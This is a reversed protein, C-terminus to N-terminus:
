GRRRGPRAIPRPRSPEPPRRCRWWGRPRAFRPSPRASPRPWRPGPARPLMAARVPTNGVNCPKRRHAPPYGLRVAPSTRRSTVGGQTGQRGDAVFVLAGTATLVGHSAVKIDAIMLLVGFVLLALGLVSVPLVSMAYLVLLLSIVGAVGPLILGPHQLEAIIGFMAVTFLIFLINPHAITHLLGERADMPVERVPAGQTNLKRGNVVRGDLQRILDARSSAVLDVVKQKVAETETISLSKRVADEYWKANRGRQEAVTRISSAAYNTVKESAPEGGEDVPHAAGINTGPAMAAINAAATIFTGASGASAGRPSIYVVVPVRANLMTRVIDHTSSLM